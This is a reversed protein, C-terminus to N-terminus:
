RPHGAPRRVARLVKRLTKTQETSMRELRQTRRDLTDVRRGVGEVKKSLKARAARAEKRTEYRESLLDPLAGNPKLHIQQDAVHTRVGWYFFAGAGVISLCAAVIAVLTGLTPRVRLPEGQGQWDIKEAPVPPQQAWDIADVTPVSKEETPTPTV